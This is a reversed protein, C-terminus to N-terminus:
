ENATIPYNSPPLTIDYVKSKSNILEGQLLWPNFLKLTKYNIKQSLAFEALDTINSDVTIKSTTIPAYLDGEGIYFGYKSPSNIIEKMALIRFIYRSTETNLYLDYYNSSKQREIDREIGNPGRNYAAAALTWSGFKEKSEKLHKCAAVTALELNLREDVNNNVELDLEKATGELIQWVGKAGSPSTVNLLGSEALALYKFDDPVGQAKLIPEIIPFTKNARKLMLLGNSQWYTNVLLERDMREKVDPIHIPMAEGAFVLDKPMQVPYIRYHEYFEETNYRYETGQYFLVFAVAALIITISLIIQKNM